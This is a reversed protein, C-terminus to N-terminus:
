EPRENHWSPFRGHYRIQRMVVSRDESVSARSGVRRPKRGFLKGAEFSVTEQRPYPDEAVVLDFEQAGLELRKEVRLMGSSVEEVLAVRVLGALRAANEEV